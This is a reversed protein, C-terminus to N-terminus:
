CKYLVGAQFHCAHVGLSIRQQYVNFSKVQGQPLFVQKLNYGFWSFLSFPASCNYRKLYCNMNDIAKWVSHFKHNAWWSITLARQKALLGHLRSFFPCLPRQPVFLSPSIGRIERKKDGGSRLNSRFNQKFNQHQIPYQVLLLRQPPSLEIYNIKWNSIMFSSQRLLHLSACSEIFHLVQSVGHVETFRRVNETARPWIGLIKFVHIAFTNYNECSRIEPSIIKGCRLFFHGCLFGRLGCNYVCINLCVILM